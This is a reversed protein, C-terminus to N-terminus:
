GAKSEELVRRSRWFVEDLGLADAGYRGRLGGWADVLFLKASHAIDPGAGAAPAPDGLAVQFGKEALSAMAQMLAPCATTCRTFFFSAVYVHGRLDDSGFPEGSAAVLSFGPVQGIVPPPSPVRRLLPRMLTMVACGVVFAWLFPNRLRNM